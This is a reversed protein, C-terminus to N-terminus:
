RQEDPNASLSFQVWTCPQGGVVWADHGPSIQFASGAAIEGETGDDMRVRLRGSIMYGLHPTECSTTGALPKSDVSWRWGPECVVLGVTAGSLTVVRGRGRVEDPTEFSKAELIAM